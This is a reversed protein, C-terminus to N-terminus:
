SNTFTYRLSGRNGYMTDTGNRYADDGITFLGCQKSLIFHYGKEYTTETGYYSDTLTTPCDFYRLQWDFEMTLGSMGVPLLITGFISAGPKAGAKFGKYEMYEVLGVAGPEYIIVQDSGLATPAYPDYFFDVGAAQIRTDFGSQDPSKAAQQLMFNYFLGDGVIQPRGSFSNRKYDALVKTLGATLPTSNTDLTLNVTTSAASGTVKNIGINSVGVTFLDRNVGEVIASAATKIDDYFEKSVSGSPQGIAVTSSADELFKALREDEMYLAIQRTSSLEVSKEYYTQTLTTECSKATDTHAVNFRKKAKVQVSKKHGSETNLRLVEMRPSQSKLMAAFGVEEVKDQPNASMYAEKSLKLLYPAFGKYLDLAM